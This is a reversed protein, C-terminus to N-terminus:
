GSGSKQYSNCANDIFFIEEFEVELKECINKAIEPGPNRSGNTIQNAYPESIDIARALGRQSFGKVMLIRKFNDTDKIKIVM